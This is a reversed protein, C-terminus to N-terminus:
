DAPEHLKATLTRANTGALNINIELHNQPLLEALIAPWEILCLNGSFLYDEVGIDIAQQLESLRYCDFHYIVEGTRTNYENVISFSPSSMEDVIGLEQGIQKILTTKGMGMEGYFCWVPVERFNLLLKRAVESLEASIYNPINM